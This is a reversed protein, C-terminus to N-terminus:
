RFDAPSLGYNKLRSYITVRSVGLSNAAERVNGNVRRLTEILDNKKQDRITPAAQIPAHREPVNETATHKDRVAMRFSQPLDGLEINPGRAMVAVREMLNELERVNGPWDYSEICALVEPSISIPGKNLGKSSKNLFFQALDAIDGFRDRLPPVDIVLVHLRYYLDRRFTGNEVAEALNRHTAAIVRVDVRCAQKGGVRTVEGEQLVRLLNVQASLSMDGIEDLFLTGGDALEFKGPAGTRAAGTFAGAEYGFLESQVLDRPIAGCNVVIFPQNRRASENHIAQAILEKGVGSEGLVLTTLSNEGAKRAVQMAEQMSVSQGIINSFDYIAKAGTLQNALTHARRRESMTICLGGEPTPSSTYLSRLLTGDALRLVIEGNVTGKGLPFPTKNSDERTAIQSFDTGEMDAFVHLLKKASRNMMRVAGQNDLAVVAEGLIDMVTQQEHLLSRLNMQESIAKAGAIVLGFTHHHFLNREIILSLAGVYAGNHFVPASACAWDDYFSNYHESGLVCVPIKEELCLGMSTTGDITERSIAGRKPSLTNESSGTGLVHLYVGDTDTLTIFNKSPRISELLEEMIRKATELFASNRQLIPYFEDPSLFSNNAGVHPVKAAKARKWSRLIYPRVSHLPIEKGKRYAERTERIEKWFEPSPCAQTAPDGVDTSSDWNNEAPFFDLTYEHM